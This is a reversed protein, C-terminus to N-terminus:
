KLVALIEDAIEEPTKGNTSITMDSAEAYANHRSELMESVYSISKKNELLPRSEDGEIRRLIEEPDAELLYTTGSSKLVLRNEHMLPVGGGCSVVLPATSAAIEELLSSEAERFATEGLKDFIDGISMSLRSSIIEDMDICPLDTKESLIRGVTTKGSGMYGILYIHKKSFIEKTQFKM